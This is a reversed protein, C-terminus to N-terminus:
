PTLDEVVIRSASFDAFQRIAIAINDSAYTPTNGPNATGDITIEIDEIGPIEYVPINLRQRIVDKGIVQNILAWDVIAEKIQNDGDVPYTEESYLDRKVKVHIYWATPRSFYITQNEGQSDVIIESDNGYSAIGVPMNEWIQEAIDADDGGVVVVEFSHPPLGNIDTVDTRNSLITVGSVGSVNNSIANMIADETARGTILTNARRIRLEVDTERNRGTVGSSLNLVSDWGTVPTVITDLTEAPVPYNGAEDAEFDGGGAITDITINATTSVSYDLDADELEIVDDTVTVSGEWTGADILVKLAAAIFTGTEVGATTHTYDTGNLTITYVEGSGGSTDATSSSYRLSTEAIEVEELLSFTLDPNTSQSVKSGAPITTGDDGYLYVDYVTTKGAQQRVIGTESCINDLSLGVAANPNRSNYIEQAGEWIESDRNALLGILQGIAGLPDLDIDNGFINKFKTEYYEKLEAYTKPVFGNETVFFESM